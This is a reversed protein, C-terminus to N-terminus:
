TVGRFLGTFSVAKIQQEVAKPQVAEEIEGNAERDDKTSPPEVATKKRSFFRGTRSSVQNKRTV